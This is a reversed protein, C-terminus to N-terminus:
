LEYDHINLLRGYVKHYGYLTFRREIEDQTTKILSKYEPNVWIKKGSEWHELVPRSGDPLLRCHLYAVGPRELTSTKIFWRLLALNHGLQYLSPGTLQFQLLLWTEYDTM